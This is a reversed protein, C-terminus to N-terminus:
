IGFSTEVQCRLYSKVRGRISVRYITEKDALQGCPHRRRDEDEQKGSGGFGGGGDFPGGARYPV